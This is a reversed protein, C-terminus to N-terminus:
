GINRYCLSDRISRYRGTSGYKRQEQLRIVWHQIPCYDFVTALAIVCAESLVAIDVVVNTRTDFQNYNFAYYILGIESLLSTIININICMRHSLIYNPHQVYQFIDSPFSLCCGCKTLLIFAYNNHDLIRVVYVTLCSEYM